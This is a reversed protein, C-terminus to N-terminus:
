CCPEFSDTALFWFGFCYQSDFWDFLTPLMIALLGGLIPALAKIIGGIFNLIGKVVQGALLGLLVSNVNNILGEVLTLPLEVFAALLALPVTIGNIVPILATLLGILIAPIIGLLKLAGFLGGNTLLRILGTIAGGILAPILNLAIGNFIKLPLKALDLLGKIALNILGLLPLGVLLSIGGILALAGFALLTIIGNKLFNLVATIPSLLLKLVNNALGFVSLIGAIGLILNLGPILGPLALLILGLLPNNKLLDGLVRIGLLINPIAISLILGIAGFILPLALNNLAKLGLGLIGTIMQQLLVLPLLLLQALGGALLSIIVAGIFKAIITPITLLLQAIKVINLVNTLLDLPLAILKALLSGVTLALLLGALLLHGPVPLIATVITALANLLTPLAAIAKVAFNLINLFGLIFDMVLRNGIKLLGVFFNLTLVAALSFAQVGLTVFQSVM